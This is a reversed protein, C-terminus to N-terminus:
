DDEESAHDEPAVWEGEEQFLLGEKVLRKPDPQIYDILFTEFFLRWGPVETEWLRVPLHSWFASWRDDSFIRWSLFEKWITELEENWDKTRPFKRHPGTVASRHRGARSAYYVCLAECLSKSLEKNTCILNLNQSAVYEQFVCRVDSISLAPSCNDEQIGQFWHTITTSSLSNLSKQM